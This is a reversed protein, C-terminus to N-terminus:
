IGPVVTPSPSPSPSGTPSPSPSPSPGPTPLGTPGPSPKPGPTSNADEPDSGASVEYGDTWGDGDMDAKNPDTGEAMEDADGLQDGDSDAVLFCTKSETREFGTILGDNDDDADQGNKLQDSDSDKLAQSMGPCHATGTSGESTSQGSSIGGLALLAMVAVGTSVLVRSRASGSTM